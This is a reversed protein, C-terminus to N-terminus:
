KDSPLQLLEAIEVDIQHQKEQKGQSNLAEMTEDEFGLIAVADPKNRMEGSFTLFKLIIQKM